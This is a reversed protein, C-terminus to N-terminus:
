WDALLLLPVVMAGFAPLPQLYSWKGNVEPNPWWNMFQIMICALGVWTAGMLPHIYATVWSQTCRVCRVFLSGMKSRFNAVTIPEMNAKGIHFRVIKDDASTARRIAAM